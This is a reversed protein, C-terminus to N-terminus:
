VALPADANRTGTALMMLDAVPPQCMTNTMVAIMFKMTTASASNTSLGSRCFNMRPQAASEDLQARGVAPFDSRPGTPRRKRKRLLPGCKHGASTTANRDGLHILRVAGGLM